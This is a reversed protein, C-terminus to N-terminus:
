DIRSHLLSATEGDTNSFTVVFHGYRERLKTLEPEAFPLEESGSSGSATSGVFSRGRSLLSSRRRARDTIM